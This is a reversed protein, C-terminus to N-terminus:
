VDIEIFPQYIAYSASVASDEIDEPGITETFCFAVPGAGAQQLHVDHEFLRGVFGHSTPKIILNPGYQEAFARVAEPNDSVLTPPISLGAHHAVELQRLKTVNGARWDNVWYKSGLSSFVGRWFHNLERDVFAQEDATLISSLGSRSPQPQRRCWVVGVDNGCLKNDGKQFEISPANPSGCQWTCRVEEKFAISTLGFGLFM